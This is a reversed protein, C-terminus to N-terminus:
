SISFPDQNMNQGSRVYSDQTIMVHQHIKQSDVVITFKNIELSELFNELSM